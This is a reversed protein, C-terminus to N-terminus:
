AHGPLVERLADLSPQIPLTVVIHRSVAAERISAPTPQVSATSHQTYAMFPLTLQVAEQGQQSVCLQRSANCFQVSISDAGAEGAHWTQILCLRGLMSAGRDACSGAPSESTMCCCSCCWAQAQAYCCLSLTSDAGLVRSQAYGLGQCAPHQCDHDQRAQWRICDASHSGYRCPRCARQRLPWFAVTMRATPWAPLQTSQVCALSVVASAQLFPAGNASLKAAAAPKAASTSSQPRVPQQSAAEAAARSARSGSSSAASSPQPEAPPPGVGLVEGDERIDLHIEQGSSSSNQGLAARIEPPMEGAHPCCCNHLAQAVPLQDPHM